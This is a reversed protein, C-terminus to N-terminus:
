GNDTPLRVGTDLRTKDAKSVISGQLRAARNRLATVRSFLSAASTSDLRPADQTASLQSTPALAPYDAARMGPSITADLEPVEACATLCLAVFLVLPARM